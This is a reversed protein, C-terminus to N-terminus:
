QSHHVKQQKRFDTILEETKKTNLTLNNDSCWDTLRKVEERYATEHNDTIPGVITTDDAFQTLTTPQYATMHRWRSSFPAADTIELKISPM